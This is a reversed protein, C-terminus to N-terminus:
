SRTNNKLTDILPESTITLSIFKIKVQSYNKDKKSLLELAQHCQENLIGKGFEKPGDRVAERVKLRMNTPSLIANSPWRM